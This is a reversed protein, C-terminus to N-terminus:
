LLSREPPGPSALSDADLAVRLYLRSRQWGRKVTRESVGRVAAIEPVSLGCFFKLDVIEALEPDHTALDDLADSVRQLIQPDHVGHAETIFTTHHVGGGRKEAHRARMDDIVLGRMVRAAYTMFRAHDPFVAGTRDSIAVYAKHLLTTVGLAASRRQRGLERQALRHLKDYLTAFLADAASRGGADVPTVLVNVPPAMCNTAM